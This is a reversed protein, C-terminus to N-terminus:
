GGVAGCAGSGPRLGLAGYGSRDPFVARVARRRARAVSSLLAGHGDGGGAGAAGRALCREELTVELHHVERQRQLVQLVPEVPVDVGRALQLALHGLREDYDAHVLAARSIVSLSIRAAAPEITLTSARWADMMRASISGFALGAGFGKSSCAVGCCIRSM